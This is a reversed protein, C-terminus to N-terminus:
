PRILIILDILIRIDRGEGGWGEGGRGRRGGKGERGTGEWGREEGGRGEGGRGKFIKHAGDLSYFVCNSSHGRGERRKRKEEGARGGWGERGGREGGRRGGRGEGGGANPLVAALALSNALLFIATLQTQVWSTEAISYKTHAM